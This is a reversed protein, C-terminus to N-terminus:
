IGVKDIEKQTPLRVFTPGFKRDEATEDDIQVVVKDSSIGKYTGWRWKDRWKALVRDNTKVADEIVLDFFSVPSEQVPRNAIILILLLERESISFGLTRATRVIDWYLDKINEPIPDAESLKLVKKLMQEHSEDMPRENINSM